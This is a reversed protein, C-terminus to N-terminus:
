DAVATFFLRRFKLVVEGNDMVPYLRVAAKEIKSEFERGQEKSM